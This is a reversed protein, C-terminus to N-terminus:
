KFSEYKKQQENKQGLSSKLEEVSFEANIQQNACKAQSETLVQCNIREIAQMTEWYNSQIKYATERYKIENVLKYATTEAYSYESSMCKSQKITTALSQYVKHMIVSRERNTYACAKLISYAKQKYIDHMAMFYDLGEYSSKLALAQELLYRILQTTNYSKTKRSYKSLNMFKSPDRTLIIHGQKDIVWARLSCFKIIEPGGIDLMKLVQGLGYQRSDARSPDPNAPLFYKYYANNIFEDTIYNQYM